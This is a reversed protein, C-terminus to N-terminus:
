SESKQLYNNKACPWAAREKRGVRLATHLTPPTVQVLHPALTVCASNFLMDGSAGRVM